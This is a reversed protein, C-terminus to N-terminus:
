PADFYGYCAEILCSVFCALRFSDERRMIRVGVLFLVGRFLLLVLRISWLGQSGTVGRGARCWLSGRLTPIRAGFCFLSRGSRYSLIRIWIPRVGRCYILAPRVGVRGDSAQM